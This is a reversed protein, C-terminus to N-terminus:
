SQQWDIATVKGDGSAAVIKAQTMLPPTSIWGALLKRRLTPNARLVDFLLGNGTDDLAFVSRGIILPTVSISEIGDNSWLLQGRADLLTLGAMHGLAIFENSAALSAIRGRHAYLHNVVPGNQEMAIEFVHGDVDTFLARDDLAFPPVQPELKRGLTLTHRLEGTTADVVSVEGALTMLLIFGAVLVPQAVQYSDLRLTEAWLRRGSIQSVADLLGQEGSAAFSYVANEDVLLPQTISEGERQIDWLPRISQKVPQDLFESLDFGILRAGAAVFLVGAHLAPTVTIAQNVFISGIAEGSMDSLLTLSGQGHAILVLGDAAIPSVMVEGELRLPFPASIEGLSRITARMKRPARLGPHMPWAENDLGKGCGRCFVALLRNTARCASCVNFGAGCQGCFRASAGVNTREGCALYPCYNWLEIVPTAAAAAM